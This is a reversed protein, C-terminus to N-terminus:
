SMRRLVFDEVAGGVLRCVCLYATISWNTQLRREYVSNSKIMKERGREKKTRENGCAYNSLLMNTRSRYVRKIKGVSFLVVRDELHPPVDGADFEQDALKELGM